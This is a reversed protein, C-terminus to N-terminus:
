PYWREEPFIQLQQQPKVPVQLRDKLNLKVDFSKMAEPSCAKLQRHLDKLDGLKVFKKEPVIYVLVNKDRELLELINSLTGSSQRDWIMFGFDAEKAMELDKKMYFRYDKKSREVEVSNTEWNGVNNRCVDGACFVIANNYGKEALYKQIAKDTGNADGVLVTFSQATIAELRECVEQSLNWFRRSGGIFVKKM